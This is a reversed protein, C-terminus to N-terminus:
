RLVAFSKRDIVALDIRRRGGDGINFDNFRQGGLMREADLKVALKPASGVLAPRLTKLWLRGMASDSRTGHQFVHAEADDVLAGIVDLRLIGGVDPEM